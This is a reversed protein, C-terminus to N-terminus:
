AIALLRFILALILRSQNAEQASTIPEVTHEDLLVFAADEPRVEDAELVIEGDQLVYQRGQWRANSSPTSM